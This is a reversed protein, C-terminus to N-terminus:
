SPYLADIAAETVDPLGVADMVHMGEILTLMAEAARYPDEVDIPMRRELWAIFGTVIERGTKLHADQGMAAAATVERWLRIYAAFVPSRVLAMVDSLLARQSPMPTEPLSADLKATMDAALWALLSAILADKSGFHYILMRDSTDAAEALPRLSATNLGNDLVHAAMARLYTEKTKESRSM